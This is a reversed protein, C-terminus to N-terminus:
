RDAVGRAPRDRRDLAEVRLAVMRHLLRPSRQVDRLAAIALATLDHLGCCQKRRVFVGGFRLDVVGHTADDAAAAAILANSGGDLRGGCSRSMVWTWAVISFTLRRPKRLPKIAVPPKTTAASYRGDRPASAAKAVPAPLIGPPTTLSGCTNTEISGLPSTVITACRASIPVPIRVLRGITMASSSSASQDRTLTTCDGPSSFFYPLWFVSPERLTRWKMWGIRSHPAAMRCISSVAAACRQPTGM